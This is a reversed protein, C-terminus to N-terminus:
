RGKVEMVKDKGWIACYREAADAMLTDRDLGAKFGEILWQIYTGMREAARGDRFPDLEDLMPSWDGFGPIGSPSNWHQICAEWLGKWDTFVVSGLGLGYLPSVHWGERDMLLTPVGALAAELGATGACLHGHVAVDAGLAAVAPPDSSNLSGADYVHCRGTEEARRLLEAVPGLRERLTRPVKPKIVLGFWPESLVKDLLFAYNERTSWHGLYWRSEDLSNEDFFALIRTAGHQRLANRVREAKNHLLPFRHDGLYGTTVYYRILSKSRREVEAGRASFGFVVDAAITTEVTPLLLYSRQYIVTVGGLSLLADAIVSQIPESNVWSVYIKVNKAAFLEVWYARLVEYTALRERLWRAELSRNPLRLDSKQPRGRGLKQRHMFVPVSAITVAKPHLVVADMGHAALEVGKKEDLPDAPFGFTLVIDTGSLGSQQWFFLDSYREPQDLNLFGYYEVAVKPEGSHQPKPFASALGNPLISGDGLADKGRRYLRSRLDYLYNRLARMAAIGRPTVIRRVLMPVNMSPIVDVITVGYGTAYHKVAQLCPRRELFLITNSDKSEENRVKWVCIQVLLLARWLTGRDLVSITAISKALYMLITDKPKENQNQVFDGFLPDKLIDDQVDGLDQFAIRLRILLGAKDRVDILRFRLKEFPIGVIWASLRAVLLVVSSGDFAYCDEIKGGSSLRTWLLRPLVSTLWIRLTLKEIFVTM